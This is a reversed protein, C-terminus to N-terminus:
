FQRRCWAVTLNVFSAMSENIASRWWSAGTLAVSAFLATVLQHFELSSRQRILQGAAILVFPVVLGIVPVTSDPITNEYLPFSYHPLNEKLIYGNRVPAKM